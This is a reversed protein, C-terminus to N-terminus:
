VSTNRTFFFVGFRKYPSIKQLRFLGPKEIEAKLIDPNQVPAGPLLSKKVVEALILRGEPKLIRNFEKLVMAHDQIEHYVTVLFVIDVAEDGIQINRGDSQIFQINAVKAKIAREQVKKLMGPSIDVAVASKAKKAIELTYYGPGCGYDMVVDTSKIELINLLESPPQLWRRIPNNLLFSLSAPYPKEQKHDSM